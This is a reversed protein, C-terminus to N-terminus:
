AVHPFPALAVPTDLADLLREDFTTLQRLRHRLDDLAAQDVQAGARRMRFECRMVVATGSITDSRVPYVQTALQFARALHMPGQNVVTALRRCFVHADDDDAVISLAIGEPGVTNSM